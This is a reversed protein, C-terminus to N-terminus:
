FRKRSIRVPYRAILVEERCPRFGLHYCLLLDFRCLRVMVEVKYFMVLLGISFSVWIPVEEV